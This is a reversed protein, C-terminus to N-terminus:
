PAQDERRQRQAIVDAHDRAYPRGGLRALLRRWRDYIAATGSGGVLLTEFGAARRSIADQALADQTQTLAESVAQTWDDVSRITGDEVVIPEGFRVLAEPLRETWFTYELAVPLIAGGQLRRALHGVGPRLTLPRQRVDTFRGQPTIWFAADRRPLVQDAVQVLREFGGRTGPEIGFFGLREFFGYRGLAADEIPVVHARGAFRESLVLGLMPDWWSPHNLAIVLPGDPLAPRSGENALRVAHFHKRVFLRGYWRFLAILWHWRRDLPSAGHVTPQLTSTESAMDVKGTRAASM